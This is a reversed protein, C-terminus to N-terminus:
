HRHTKKPKIIRLYLIFLGISLIFSIGGIIFGKPLYSFTVNHKGKPLHISVFADQFAKTDVKKGDIKATWGKDYPITTILTQAKKATVTGEASRKGIKMDVGNAKIKEIAEM